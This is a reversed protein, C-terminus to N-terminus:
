LQMINCSEKGCGQFGLVGCPMQETLLATTDLLFSLTMEASTDNSVWSFLEIVDLVFITLRGVEVIRVLHPGHPKAGVAASRSPM